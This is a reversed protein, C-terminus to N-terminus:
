PSHSPSITNHTYAWHKHTTATNQWRQKVTQQEPHRHNLCVCLFLFVFLFFGRVSLFLPKMTILHGKVKRNNSINGHMCTNQYASKLQKNNQQTNGKGLQSIPVNRKYLPVYIDSHSQSRNNIALPLAPQHRTLTRSNLSLTGPFFTNYNSHHLQQIFPPTKVPAGFLSVIEQRLTAIFFIDDGRVVRVSCCALIWRYYMIFM